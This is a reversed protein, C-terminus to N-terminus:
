SQARETAAQERLTEYLRAPGLLVDKLGERVRERIKRLPHHAPARTEPLIYSFLEGQDRFRGDGFGRLTERGGIAPLEYFPIFSGNVKEFWGRLATM